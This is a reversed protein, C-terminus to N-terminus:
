YRIGGGFGVDGAGSTGALLSTGAAVGFTGGEGLGAHGAFRSDMVGRFDTVEGGPGFTLEAAWKTSGGADFGYEVNGGSDIVGATAGLSGGVGFRISTIMGQKFDWTSGAVLGAGVDLSVTSCDLTLSAPGLSFVIKKGALPCEPRDGEPIDESGAMGTLSQPDCFPHSVSSAFTTAALSWTEVLDLVRIQVFMRRTRDAERFEEDNYIQDV